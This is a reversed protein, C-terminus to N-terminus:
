LTGFYAEIETWDSCRQIKNNTSLDQNWPRDLLAVRVDMQESLFRAMRSSDEVALDFELTSLNELSISGNGNSADRGYKNVISFSDYTFGNLKLWEMSVSRAESPRGTMISIEYGKNRWHAMAKKAGPVPTQRIMEEPDHIHEFFRDYEEDTLGFSKQLDFDTIQSYTGKKGFERELVDIFTQHSQTIVDDMDIYISVM